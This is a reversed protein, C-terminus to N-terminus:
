FINILLNLDRKKFSFFNSTNTQLSNHYVWLLYVLGFIYAVSSVGAAANIGFVPILFVDGTAVAVLSIITAIMNSTLMAKGALYAALLTVISLAYFGPLYWLFAVYMQNFAAGFLWPFIWFGTAVILISVPIFLFSIIRCLQQLKQLYNAEVGDGKESSYPFIVAAMMTPLLILLQGMRSVQVYNSLAIEDCYKQVFYYDLRTVLFFLVNSIFAIMSYSFLKKILAPEIKIPLLNWDQKYFFMFALLLAQLVFGAFYTIVASSIEHATAGFKKPILPSSNGHLFDPQLYILLLCIMVFFNIVCIIVNLLIFRKQTYYLATFYTIGLNAIIYFWAFQKNLELNIIGLLLWSVAGQIILWPILFISLSKINLSNNSGFYTIGSEISGSMVLTFFAYLAIAYFFIGSYEGGMIRVLLLNICFTLVTNIVKWVITHQLAKTFQM